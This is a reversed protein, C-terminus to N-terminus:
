CSIWEQTCDPLVRMGGAAQVAALTEAVLLVQFPSPEERRRAEDLRTVSFVEYPGCFDLVEVEPFIVIGVLKRKMVTHERLFGNKLTTM